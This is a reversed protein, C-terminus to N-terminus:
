FLILIWNNRSMIKGEWKKINSFARTGMAKLTIDRQPLLPVRSTQVRDIDKIWLNSSDWLIFHFDLFRFIWPLVKAATWSPTVPLLSTRKGYAIYFQVFYISDYKWINHLLWPLVKTGLLINNTRCGSPIEAQLCKLHSKLSTIGLLTYADQQTSSVCM